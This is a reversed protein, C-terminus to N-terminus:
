KTGEIGNYGLEVSNTKLTTCLTVAVTERIVTLLKIWM